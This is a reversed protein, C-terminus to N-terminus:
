SSPCSYVGASGMSSSTYGQFGSSDVCFMASKGSGGVNKNNMPVEIAWSNNSTNCTATDLSTSMGLPISSGNVVVGNLKANKAADLVVPYVSGNYGYRCFYAFSGHDIFFIGSKSSITTLGKKIAADAGKRNASRLSILVVSALVGIIAIVVLLEILTFGRNKNM